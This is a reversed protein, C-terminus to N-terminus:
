LTDLIATLYTGSVSSYFFADIMGRKKAFTVEQAIEPFSNEDCILAIKCEPRIKRVQECVQLRANMNTEKAYSVDMLLVDGLFAQCEKVVDNGRSDSCRVSWFEGSDHLIRIIAEALLSNQIGVVVKKM